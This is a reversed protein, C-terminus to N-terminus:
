TSASAAADALQAFESTSIEGSTRAVVKGDRGIAVFYPYGPLGFAQAATSTSSDALIPKPWHANELWSSPPYNPADPSTGTAITVLDLGKPLDHTRLYSSLVPVERRCHPCWHAVFVLLKARGDHGVKVPSGDFSSGSLEPAVAGVAPDTAADTLAPLAAGSVQVARTQELGPTAVSSSGGRSALVAIAAALVVVAGAVLWIVPLRRTRAPTRSPQNM